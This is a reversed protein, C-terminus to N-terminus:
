LGVFGKTTGKFGLERGLREWLFERVRGCLGGGHFAGPGRVACPADYSWM